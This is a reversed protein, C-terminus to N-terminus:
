LQFRIGLTGGFNQDIFNYMGTIDIRILLINFSLGGFARIGFDINEITSNIGSKDIKLSDLGANSLYNNVDSISATNGASDRVNVDSSLGYKITSWGISAGLGAYPTIIFIKKSVQARFDWTFNKWQFRATPDALNIYYNGLNNSFTYTPVTGLGASIEGNAFNFGTAISIGPIILKDELIRYRVDFGWLTYNFKTVVDDTSIKLSPVLDAKVGVDFPLVFGGIRLEAMGTPIPLYSTDASLVSKGGSNVMATNKLEQKLRNLNVTSVGANIGIGFHPPAGILQGIHADSWNLGLTSNFTLAKTFDDAIGIISNNLKDLTVGQQASVSTLGLVTIFGLFIIKKRTIM